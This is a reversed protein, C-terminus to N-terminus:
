GQQRLVNLICIVNEPFFLIIFPILTLICIAKKIRFIILIKRINRHFRKNGHDILAFCRVHLHM